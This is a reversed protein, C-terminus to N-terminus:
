CSGINRVRDRGGKGWGQSDGRGKGPRLLHVEHTTTAQLRGVWAERLDLIFIFKGQVLTARECEVGGIITSEWLLLYASPSEPRADPYATDWQRPETAWRGPLRHGMTMNGAKGQM